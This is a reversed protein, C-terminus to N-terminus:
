TEKRAVYFVRRTSSHPPELTFAGYSATLTFGASQLVALVEREPIVREQHVERFKAYLGNETRSFGTLAIEWIDAGAFSTEWVLTFDPSDAWALASQAGHLKEVRNIDFIFLGGPLLSRYVALAAAYFDEESLLYNIGDQFSVALAVPEALSFNRMDAQLYSIGPLGATEAKKRAAQLMEGSLDLGTVTYGTRALALTTSGTGCALDLAQAGPVGGHREVLMSVCSAWEDYDIGSMLQDYIAALGSYQEM